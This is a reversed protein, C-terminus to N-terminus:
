GTALKLGLVTLQPDRFGCRSKRVRGSRPCESGQCRVHGRDCTPPTCLGMLELWQSVRRCQEVLHQSGTRVGLTWGRCAPEEKMGASVKLPVSDLGLVLLSPGASCLTAEIWTIVIHCEPDENVGPKDVKLRLDLPAYQQESHSLSQPQKQNQIRLTVENCPLLCTLPSLMENKLPSANLILTFTIFSTTRHSREHRCLSSKGSFAKGCEKCEYPEEGTHTRQHISLSSKVSFARGCEKCEYPKEGTHTRLHISLSSKLSFAKGCEKCEYPKEGTHTRDHRCLSSKDSFAKGCEQCEYPKEGTHNRLHISLTSKDSFAKGCEKCEYPKEGTHIRQHRRFHSKESFAKGCEKCEYPKEGTHTREHRCLSSKESFAKGCEKCEYPKEDTHTREHRCLSSKESFAKGCKKCGYPKEGTHTRQHISVKSKDSFAKGCEQCEYPKEGTHNRQHISLTSKDSFAKGCEKCEYPKEGTHTRQHRRFHSKESFAKGCEQCEYPKEGTHTRQHRRFHSKESFAKGCEQCEYPKEGTHTRQHRRFHSKESFAKGCEQCEYPKEGTHTRQHRRFHSKESFTKGCEQCEYPKEGTHTRKHRSLSSKESFAKGCDKCEYPKEGTHTREHRCLCSKESFAKGCEQCEYPKEGTHTRVHKCLCSKKSFAKGCEKCEYPKEGTHTRQYLIHIEGTHMIQHKTLESKKYLMEGCIGSLFTKREVQNTEQAIVASKGCCKGYENHKYNTEDMHINKDTFTMPETNSSKGKGNYELAQKGTQINPHQSFHEHHRPLKVTTHYDDPKKGAPMEDPERPLLANQCTYFDEHGNGSHNGNDIIQNLVHYTNLYFSKGLVVREEFSTNSNTLIIQQLGRGHSEQNREVLDDDIHVDQLIQNPCEEITWSESGEELKVIVEAKNICHKLSVLNSYTELMVDRYLTRQADNLDQWEEWTFDVAVDEFSVLELSKNM